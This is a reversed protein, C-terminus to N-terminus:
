CRTAMKAPSLFTLKSGQKTCYVPEAEEGTQGKKRQREREKKKKRDKGGGTVTRRGDQRKEAEAM